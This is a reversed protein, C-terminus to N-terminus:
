RIQANIGEDCLPNRGGERSNTAATTADNISQIDSAYRAVAFYDQRASM